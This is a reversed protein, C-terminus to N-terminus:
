ESNLHKWDIFHLQFHRRRFPTRKTETKILWYLEWVNERLMTVKHRWIADSRETLMPEPVSKGGTLCWRMVQVLAQKRGTLSKLAHFATLYAKQLNDAMKTLGWHTLKLTRCLMRNHACVDVNWIIQKYSMDQYSQLLATDNNLIM